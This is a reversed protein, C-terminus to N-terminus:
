FSWAVQVLFRYFNISRRIRASRSGAGMLTRHYAPKGMERGSPVKDWILFVKRDQMHAHRHVTNRQSDAPLFWLSALV